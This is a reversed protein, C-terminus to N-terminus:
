KFRRSKSWRTRDYYEPPRKKVWAIFQALQPHARLAEFTSFADALEQESLMAHIARHCIKHMTVTARGGRSRPLPHHQDLSPGAIMPRDCLPCPAAPVGDM